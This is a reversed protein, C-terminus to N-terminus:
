SNERPFHKYYFYFDSVRGVLNKWIYFTSSIYGLAIKECRNKIYHIKLMIPNSERWLNEEDLIIMSGTLNPFNDITM